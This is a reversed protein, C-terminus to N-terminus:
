GPLFVIKPDPESINSTNPEEESCIFFIAEGESIHFIEGLGPPLAAKAPRPSIKWIEEPEAINKMNEESSGLLDRIEEDLGWSGICIHPLFSLQYVGNHCSAPKHPNEFMYTEFHLFIDLRRLFVTSLANSLRHDMSERRLFYKDYFNM